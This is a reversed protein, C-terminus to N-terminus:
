NYLNCSAIPHIRFLWSPIFVTTPVKKRRTGPSHINNQQQQQKPPELLLSTTNDAYMGWSKSSCVTPFEILLLTLVLSLPLIPSYPPPYPLHTRPEQGSLGRDLTECQATHNPPLILSSQPATISGCMERMLRVPQVGINSINKPIRNNDSSKRINQILKFVALSWPHEEWIPSQWGDTTREQQSYRAEAGESLSRRVECTPWPAHKHPHLKHFNRLRAKITLIQPVHSNSFMAQILTQKWSNHNSQTPVALRAQPTSCCARELINAGCM